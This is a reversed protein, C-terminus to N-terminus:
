ATIVFPRLLATMSIEMILTGGGVIRRGRGDDCLLSIMAVARGLPRMAVLPM